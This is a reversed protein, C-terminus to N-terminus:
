ERRVVRALSIPAPCLRQRAPQKEDAIRLLRDIAEPAGINGDVTLHTTANFFPPRIAEVEFGAEAANGPNLRKHVRRELRDHGAILERQLGFVNAEIPITGREISWGDITASGTGSGYARRYTDPRDISCDSGSATPANTWQITFSLPQFTVSRLPSRAQRPIPM